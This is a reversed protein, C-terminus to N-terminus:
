GGLRWTGIVSYISGRPTLRSTYLSASPVSMAEKAAHLAANGADLAAQSLAHPRRARCLTAHPVFARDEAPIGFGLAAADVAEALATADGGPDAFRAWLMRARRLTPKPVLSELALEFGSAQSVAQQMADSLAEIDEDAVTGLFKLTIHLNEAAVWKEDRWSPDTHRIEDTARLLAREAVESLPLGMFCRVASM